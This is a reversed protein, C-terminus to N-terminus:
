AFCHFDEQEQFRRFQSRCVRGEEPGALPAPAGSYETKASCFGTRVQLRELSTMSPCVEKSVHLSCEITTEHVNHLHAKQSQPIAQQQPCYRHRGREQDRGIASDVDRKTWLLLPMENSPHVRYCVNVANTAICHQSPFIYTGQAPHMSHKNCPTSSANPEALSSLPQKRRTQLNFGELFIL